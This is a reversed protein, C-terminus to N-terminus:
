RRADGGGDSVEVERLLVQGADRVVRWGIEPATKRPRRTPTAVPAPSRLNVAPSADAVVRWEFSPARPPPVLPPVIPLVVPPPAPPSTPIAPVVPPPVPRPWTLWLGVGVLPVVVVAAVAAFPVGGLWPAAAPLPAQAEATITTGAEAREHAAPQQSVVRPTGFVTVRWSHEDECRLGFAQAGAAAEAEDCTKRALDPVTAFRKTSLQVATGVAVKARAAPSQSQVVRDGAHDQADAAGRLRAEDLRGQAAALTQGVVDPVEVVERTELRVASGADVVTGPAPAQQSVIREGRREDPQATLRAAEISGIAGNLPQERVDPVAVQQVAWVAVRIAAPAPVAEGGPEPTQEFVRGIADGASSAPRSECDVRPHGFEAARERAAACDLGILRPVSLGLRIAVASGPAVPTGAAPDQSLVRRGNAAPPGSARAQLKRSALLSAAKAEALGVVDPVVAQPAPQTRLVLPAGLPLTTGPNPSQANIHGERVGAVANGPTCTEFKADLASLAAAAEDCTRGRLDPLVRAAPPVPEIRARLADVRAVPTGPAVSQANITGVPYGSGARGPDCEVLRVGLERLVAQARDCSLGRVDPLATIPQPAPEVAVRLDDVKAAPTGPPISQFNITGAPYRSGAQGTVCEALAIRLKRLEAQAQECTKGRLDPLKRANADAIAAALAAAAAIAAATGIGTGGSGGTGGGADVGIGSGTDTRSSREPELTVRLGDLEAVPTGPASSQWNITGAPYRGGAKGVPCSALDLHLKRLAARADDCRMGRLDGLLPSRPASYDFGSKPAPMPVPLPVPKPAQARAGVATAVLLLGICVVVLWRRM